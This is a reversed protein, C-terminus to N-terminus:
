FSLKILRMSKLIHKWGGRLPGDGLVKLKADTKTNNIADIAIDLAKWHVLRGVFLVNLNVKSLSVKPTELTSFAGNEVMEIVKGFRFKPLSEKTRQNAVLLVTALLKGLIILNYLSSFFRVAAYLFKEQKSVMYNFAAPFTMGGNMSGIVVPVNLAFMASPLTPSVPAPEHIIDIKKLRVIKRALKWQYIQTILHILLGFTVLQITDPLRESYKHLMKHALTDPM